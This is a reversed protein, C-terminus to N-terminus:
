GISAKSKMTSSKSSNGWLKSLLLEPESSLSCITCIKPPFTPAMEWKKKGKVYLLTVAGYHICYFHQWQTWGRATIRCHRSFTKFCSKRETVSIKSKQSASIKMVGTVLERFNNVFFKEIPVCYPLYLIHFLFYHFELFTLPAKWGNREDEDYALFTLKTKRVTQLSKIRCINETSGLAHLARTLGYTWVDISREFATNGPTILEKFKSDSPDQLGM